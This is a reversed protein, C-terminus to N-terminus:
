IGVREVRRSGVAYAHCIAVALADAADDPRPLQPLHLLRQVMDMVQRKEANGYGVVAQKVQSPKYEAVPLHYKAALMLVVGRSHAVSLGTTVNNGFFLEEISIMDPRFTTLLAEFDEAISLLRQELPTNPPTTVVGHRIHTVRAGDVSVVGFGMTALGPDIGLITM